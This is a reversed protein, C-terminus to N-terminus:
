GSSDSQAPQMRTQQEAFLRVVEDLAVTSHQIRAIVWAGQYALVLRMALDRPQPLGFREAHTAILEIWDALVAQATETLRRSQPVQDVSISVIPCGMEWDTQELWGKVTKAVAAVGAAFDPAEVFARDFHKAVYAGAWELSQAALQEKGEPFHHYFSGKPAQAAEIIETLGVASYGRRQFLLAASTIFRTKADSPRPM